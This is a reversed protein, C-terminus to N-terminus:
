LHFRISAPMWEQIDEFRCDAPPQTQPFVFRWEAVRWQVEHREGNKLVVICLEGDRLHSLASDARM